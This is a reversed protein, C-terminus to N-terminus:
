MQLTISDSEILMKNSENFSIKMIKALNRTKILISNLNFLSRKLKMISFNM